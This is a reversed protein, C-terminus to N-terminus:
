KWWDITKPDQKKIEAAKAEGVRKDLNVFLKYGLKAELAEISIAWDRTYKVNSKSSSSWEEHDFWFGAAMYGDIGVGKISSYRLCAKFYATPVTIQNGSRDYVYYKADKTVCGTVCFLTDKELSPTWFNSIKNELNAWTGGNFDNNQPTMNTGYFTAANNAELGQRHYSPIQHGRAYWGNNGDKYGGSVNQQKAAPMFPDYGWAETRTGGSLNAGRISANTPYAVWFSVRDKYNFYYSYNRTRIGSTTTMAHAAFDMGDSANTEPLELWTVPAAAVPTIDIAGSSAGPIGGDLTGSQTFHYETAYGACQLTLICSRASNAENAGYSLVVDAQGTGRNPTVRAWGTESEEPYSITITWASVADVNIHQQKSDQAAPTRLRLIVPVEEPGQKRCSTPLLSLATLLVAVIPLSFRIAKM